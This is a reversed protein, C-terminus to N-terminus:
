TIQTPAEDLHAARNKNIITSKKRTAVIYIDILLECINPGDAM